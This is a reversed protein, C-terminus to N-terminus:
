QNRQQASILCLSAGHGFCEAFTDEMTEASLGVLSRGNIEIIVDGSVFSQGPFEEVFDILYGQESPTMEIGAGHEAHVNLDVWKREDQERRGPFHYEVLHKLEAFARQADDQHLSSSPKMVAAELGCLEASVRFRGAFTKLDAHFAEAITRNRQLLMAASTPLPISYRKNSNYMGSGSSSGSCGARQGPYHSVGTSPNVGSVGSTSQGLDRPARGRDKTVGHGLDATVVQRPNHWGRSCASTATTLTVTDTNGRPAKSGVGKAIVQVARESETRAPKRQLNQVDQRLLPLSDAADASFNFASHVQSCELM